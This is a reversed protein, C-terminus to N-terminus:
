EGLNETTVVPITDAAGDPGTVELVKMGDKLINQLYSKVSHQCLTRIYLLFM